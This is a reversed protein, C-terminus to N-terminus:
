IAGNKKKKKQNQKKKNKQEGVEEVGSQMRTFKDAKYEVIAERLEGLEELWIVHASKAELDRLRQQEREIKFELESAKTETVASLPVALLDRVEGDGETGLGLRTLDEEVQGLDRGAVVVEKTTILRVFRLMRRMKEMEVRCEQILHAKRREYLAMRVKAHAEIVDACRSVKVVKGRDDLVYMNRLSFQTRLKFTTVFAEPTGSMLARLQTPDCTLDIRVKTESSAQYIDTVLPGPTGRKIKNTDNAVSPSPSDADHPSAPSAPSPPSEAEEDRKRKKLPKPPITPPKTAASGSTAAMLKEKVFNEYCEGWTGIPLETISVVSAELDVTWVGMSVLTDPTSPHATLSGVFGDYQPVLASAAQNAAVRAAEKAEVTLDPAEALARAECAEVVSLADHPPVFTSWGTGIGAAGNVLLLPIVGCFAKPEVTKGEDVNYELVPLDEARFLKSLAPDNKRTYIYRPASHVSPKNLRSGFQGEPVLLPLNNTGVHEQAMGVVTEVLSVEGHHYNTFEAVAAGAQAVKLDTKVNKQIMYHLVKRQAPKLGDVVSPLSRSTDYMAFGTLDKTVVDQYSVPAGGARFELTLKPDFDNLLSKRAEIQKSDFFIEMAKSCPPGQFRLPLLHEEYKAFYERAEKSTSTGLGKYYKISSKKAVKPNQAAWVEYERPTYFQLSPGVSPTAKILATFFRLVFDPRIALLSPYKDVLWWMLLGAIHSGDLDQDTVLVVHRFPLAAASAEDYTKGPVLGLISTLERLEKNQGVKAASNNRSNMLKGRLRYIGFRERGIASVGAVVFAGASDGETVLLHAGRSRQASKSPPNYKEFLRVQSRKCSKEAMSSEKKDIGRRVIDLLDTKDCLDSMFKDSPTWSFGLRKSPTMLRQKAQSEFSKDAVLCTVCMSLANLVVSPRIVMDDGRKANKRVKARVGEVLKDQVHKVHTGADCRIGNVYGVCRDFGQTNHIPEGAVLLVDIRCVKTGNADTVHDTAVRSPPERPVGSAVDNDTSNNNNNNNMRPASMATLLAAGNQLQLPAPWRLAKKGDCDGLVIASDSESFSVKTPRLACCVAADWARRSLARLIGDGLVPSSGRDGSAILDDTPPTGVHDAMGLLKWDFSARVRVFGQKLKYPLLIAEHETRMNNTWKQRFLTGSGPCATELIFEKSFTNVLAIGYGNRGGSVRDLNLVAKSEGLSETSPKEQEGLNTGSMYEGFIISNTYRGTDKYKCPPLGQGDNWVEVQGTERDVGIHIHKQTKDRYGNDMANVVMEDLLKLVADSIMADYDISVVSQKVKNDGGVGKPSPYQQSQQSQQSQHSQQFTVGRVVGACVSTVYMEPRLM